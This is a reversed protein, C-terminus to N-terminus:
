HTEGDELEKLIKNVDDETKFLKDKCVKILEKARKVKASLEDVTIDGSEIEQVILQIEEFAEQYKM